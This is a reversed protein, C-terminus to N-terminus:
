WWNLEFTYRYVIYMCISINDVYYLLSLLMLYVVNSSYETDVFTIEDHDDKLPGVFLPLSREVPGTATECMELVM